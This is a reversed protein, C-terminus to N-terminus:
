RGKLVAGTAKAGGSFPLHNTDLRPLALPNDRGIRALGTEVALGVVCHRDRLKDSVKQDYSGHPYCMIWDHTPTGVIRLLELTADIEADLDVGALQDLRRHTDGHGGVYMGADAMTRLQDTSCYLEEAFANEDRTVMERFLAAVIIQAVQAPLGSQLMRKVFFAPAPDFRGPKHYRALYESESDLAFEARLPAILALLQRALAETDPSTALIFHIKHVDAVVRQLVPQAPPFFAGHLGRRQLIPFVTDYHDSLGDDFSLYAPRPPLLRADAAKVAAILTKSDIVTYNSVIYDLQGEFERGTIGKIRPFASGKLDRVYHYAVVCLLSDNM